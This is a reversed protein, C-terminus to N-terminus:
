RSRGASTPEWDSRAVFDDKTNGPPRPETRAGHFAPVCPPEGERFQTLRNLRQRLEDRTRASGAEVWDPNGQNVRPLISDYAVEVEARHADIYQVAARVQEETLELEEALRSPPDGARVYDMVRYVTVRTGEV